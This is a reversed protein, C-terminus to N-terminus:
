QAMERAWLMPVSYAPSTFETYVDVDTSGGCTVLLRPKPHYAIAFNSRCTSPVRAALTGGISHHYVWPEAGVSVIAGDVFALAQTASATPMTNMSKQSSLHFINLYHGSGGCVLWNESPDFALCSVWSTSVARRTASARETGDSCFM